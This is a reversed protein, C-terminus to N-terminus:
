SWITRGFHYWLVSATILSLPYIVVFQLLVRPLTHRSSWALQAAVLPAWWFVVFPYDFLDPRTHRDFNSETALSLPEALVYGVIPWAFLVALAFVINAVGSLQLFLYSEYRRGEYLSVIV